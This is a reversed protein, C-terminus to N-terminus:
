SGSMEVRVTNTEGATIMIQQTREGLQPNKLVVTHLGAVVEIKAIPTQGLPAGDIFVEAWPIAILKLFGVAPAFRRKLTEGAAVSFGERSIGVFDGALAAEHSGPTLRLRAFPPGPLLKGDISLELGPDATAQLFGFAPAAKPPPAVPKRRVETTRPAPTPTEEVASAAVNAPELDEIEMNTPAAEPVTTVPGAAQDGSEESDPRLVSMALAVGLLLAGVAIAAIPVAGTKKDEPVAIGASPRRVVRISGSKSTVSSGRDPPPVFSDSSDEDMQTLTSLMLSSTSESVTVKPLGIVGDELVFEADNWDLLDTFAKRGELDGAEAHLVNGKDFFIRGRIGARELILTATRGTMGMLQILDTLGLSGIDGAITKPKRAPM